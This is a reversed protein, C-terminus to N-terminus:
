FRKKTTSEKSVATSSSLPPRWSCSDGLMEEVKSLFLHSVSLLSIHDCNLSQTTIRMLLDPEPLINFKCFKHDKQYPIFKVTKQYTQKGM